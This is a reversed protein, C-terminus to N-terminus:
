VLFNKIVTVIAKSLIIVILGVVTWILTKKAQSVREPNGGGTVFMFAAALITLPAIVLTITFLFNVVTNLVAAFTTARLPNQFTGPIVTIQACKGGKPSSADKKCELNGACSIVPAETPDCGEGAGPLPVECRGAANCVLDGPAGPCPQTKDCKQGVAATVLSQVTVSQACTKTNGAFDRVKLTVSYTDPKGYNFEVAPGKETSNGDDGFEWEYTATTDVQLNLFKRVKSWMDEKVEATFRVIFGPDPLPRSQFACHPLLTDVGVVILNPSSVPLDDTGCPKKEQTICNLANDVVHIGYWYVRELGTSFNEEFSTKSTGRNTQVRKWGEAANLSQWRRWLQVEKLGSDQLESDSVDYDIRLVNNQANILVTEQKKPLESRGNFLTIQPFTKDVQVKISSSSGVESCPTGAENVCNDKQDIIHLGYWYTGDELATSPMWPSLTHVKAANFADFVKAAIPNTGENNRPDLWESPDTDLVGDGDADWARRLEIRKLGGQDTVEWSIEVNPNELNVWQPAKPSVDFEKVKPNITDVSVELVDTNGQCSTAGEEKVDQMICRNGAKDVVHLGYKYKEEEDRLFTNTFKGEAEIRSGSVIHKDYPVTGWTLDDAKKRWIQVEALGSSPIASDRVKYTFTVTRKERNIEETDAIFNTILPRTDDKKIRFSVESWESCGMPRGNQKDTACAKVRAIFDGPPLSDGVEEEITANEESELIEKIGGSLKRGTNKELIEWSYLVPEHFFETPPESWRLLFPTSELGVGESPSIITPKDLVLDFSWPGGPPGCSLAGSEQKECATVQWTYGETLVIKAAFGPPQGTNVDIADEETARIIHKKTARATHEKKAEILKGFRDSSIELIYVYTIGRTPVFNWAFEEIPYVVKTNEKPSFPTPKALAVFFERLDSAPGLKNAQRPIVQWTYSDNLQIWSSPIGFFTSTINEFTHTFTAGSTKNLVVNYRDAGVVKQWELKVPDSVATKLTDGPSLLKPKALTPTFKWVNGNNSWPGCQDEEPQGQAPAAFGFCARVRWRHETEIILAQTFTFSNTETWIRKAGGGDESPLNGGAVEVVYGGVVGGPFDTKSWKLEVPQEATGGDAPSSSTPAPLAAAEVVPAAFGGLLIAGLTGVLLIAFAYKV